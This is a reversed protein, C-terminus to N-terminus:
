GTPITPVPANGGGAYNTLTTLFLMLTVAQRSELDNNEIRYWDEHYEVIAFSDGPKILM